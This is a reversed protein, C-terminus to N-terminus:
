LSCALCFVPCVFFCPCTVGYSLPMPMQVSLRLSYLFVFLVTFPFVYPSFLSFLSRRRSAVLCTLFQILTPPDPLYTSPCIPLKTPLHTSLCVSPCLPLKTPLYTPLYVSLDDTQYTSPYIYMCVSLPLKTPLYTPLRVSRCNPLYIPLYVYLRVSRYNPLYTSLDTTQNTPLCVSHCSQLKTPLYVVPGTTQNPLHTPPYVYSVTLLKISPAHFM